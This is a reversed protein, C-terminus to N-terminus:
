GMAPFQRIGYAAMCNTCCCADIFADDAGRAKLAFAVKAVALPDSILDSSDSDVFVRDSKKKLLLDATHEPNMERWPQVSIAAYAGAELVLDINAETCHDIVVKSMDLGRERCIELSRKTAEVKRDMPNPVHIDITVGADRVIDVQRELLMQQYAPDANTRSGPEFGVEGVAVVEPRALYSPLLALLEEVGDRPTSVMSIGIMAWADIFNQKARGLQKELQVDWVDIITDKSVPKFAGLHVPSIVGRINHLSMEKLSAISLDLLHTHADIYYM